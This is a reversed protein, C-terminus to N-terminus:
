KNTQKNEQGSIFLGCRKCAGEHDAPRRAEHSEQQVPQQPFGAVGVGVLLETQHYRLAVRQDIGDDIGQPVVLHPPRELPDQAAQTPPPVTLLPLRRRDM